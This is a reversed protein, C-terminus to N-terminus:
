RALDVGLNDNATTSAGSDATQDGAVGARAIVFKGSVRTRIRQDRKISRFIKSAILALKHHKNRGYNFSRRACTRLINFAFESEAVLVSGKHLCSAVLTQNAVTRTMKNRLLVSLNM